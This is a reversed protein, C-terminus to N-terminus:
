NMKESVIFINSLFKKQQSPFKRNNLLKKKKKSASFLFTPQQKLHVTIPKIELLKM